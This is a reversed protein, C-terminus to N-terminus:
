NYVKRGRRGTMDDPDREDGSREGGREMREGRHAHKEAAAFGREENRSLRRHAVM